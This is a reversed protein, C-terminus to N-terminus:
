ESYEPIVVETYAKADLYGLNKWASERQMPIVFRYHLTQHFGSIVNIMQVEDDKNIVWFFGIKKPKGNSWEM